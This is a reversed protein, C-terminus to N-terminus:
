TYVFRNLEIHALRQPAPAVCAVLCGGTTTERVICNNEAKVSTRSELASDYGCRLIVPLHNRGLVDCRLPWLRGLRRGDGLVGGHGILFHYTEPM